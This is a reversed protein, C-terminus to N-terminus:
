WRSRPVALVLNLGGHAQIREVSIAIDHNLCLLVAEFILNINNSLRPVLKNVEFGGIIWSLHGLNELQIKTSLIKDGRLVIDQKQERWFIWIVIRM